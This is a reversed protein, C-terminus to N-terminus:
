AVSRTGLRLSALLKRAEVDNPDLEIAAEFAKRAYGIERNALRVRGLLSHLAADEPEHELATQVYDLARDTRDLELAVAAARHNLAPDHPRYLLVEELMELAKSLDRHDMEGQERSPDLLELARQEAAQAQFEAMQAKYEANYPDFCIAIRMSAAADVWRERRGALVASREFESARRRREEVAEQSIRFPMRQKLRELKSLTRKPAPTAKASAESSVQNTSTRDDSEVRYRTSGAVGSKQLEARLEPDSLMEYAELVKEFIRELRAVYGGIERRCVRDPHFEKSLKYYARKVPRTHADSAVAPM